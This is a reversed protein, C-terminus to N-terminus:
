VSRPLRGPSADRIACLRQIMAPREVEGQEFAVVSWGEPLCDLLECPRLLFDPNSPKGFRENGLMFTEYILVGGPRVLEYLEALRPRYLYNAVVVADFREGGLPWDAGELELVRAAIGAVGDMTALAAADRDVATVRYGREALWRAHRGGGAAFDLVHAGDVLLASFRLVWDSPAGGAGQPRPHLRPEPFSQSPM